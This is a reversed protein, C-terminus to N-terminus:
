PAGVGPFDTKMADEYIARIEDDGQKEIYAPLGSTAYADGMQSNEFLPWARLFWKENPLPGMGSNTLVEKLDTKWADPAARSAAGWKEPIRNIVWTADDSLATWPHESDAVIRENVAQSAALDVLDRTAVFLAQRKSARGKKTAEVREANIASMQSWQLAGIGPGHDVVTGALVGVGKDNKNDVVSILSEIVHGVWGGASEHGLLAQLVALDVPEQVGSAPLFTEAHSPCFLVQPGSANAIVRQPAGHPALRLKYVPRAEPALLEPLEEPCGCVLTILNKQYRWSPLAAPEVLDGLCTGSLDADILLVPGKKDEAWRRALRYAVTTKGVGGKSSFVDVRM